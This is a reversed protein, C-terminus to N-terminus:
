RGISSVLLAEGIGTLVVHVGNSAIATPNYGVPEPATVQQEWTRGDSSSSVVLTQVAPDEGVLGAAIFGIPTWGIVGIRPDGAALNAVAQWTTGDISSWIRGTTEHGLRGSVALIRDPGVAIANVSLYENAVSTQGDPLGIPNSWAFGDSSTWIAPLWRGGISQAGGAIFGSGHAAIAGVQSDGSFSASKWHRGDPSFWIVPTSPAVVAPASGAPREYQGVVLFGQTSAVIARPLVTQGVTPSGLASPTWTVGDASSWATAVQGLVGVAVVTRGDVSAAVASAQSPPAAIVGAKTWTRGDPSRFAEIPGGLLPIRGVALFGDGFPVVDALSAGGTSSGLPVESWSAGISPAISPSPSSSPPLSVAVTATPSATPPGTPIASVLAATPGPTSGCGALVLGLLSAVIARPVNL